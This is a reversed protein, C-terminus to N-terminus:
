LEHELYYVKKIGLQTVKGNSVKNWNRRIWRQTTGVNLGLAKDAEKCNDYIECPKKWYEFCVRRVPPRATFSVNKHNDPISDVIVINKIRKDIIDDCSFEKLWRVITTKSVGIEEAMREIGRYYNKVDGELTLEILTPKKGVTFTGSKKREPILVEKYHRHNEESTMWELNELRNNLPNGDKHNVQMKDSNEIPCFALMVLRHVFFKKTRNQYSLNVKQHNDSASAPGWSLIKGEKKIKFSKIRGLNSVQYTEYNEIPLNKWVENQLEQETFM